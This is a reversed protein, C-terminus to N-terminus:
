SAAWPFLVEPGKEFTESLIKNPTKRFRKAATVIARAICFNRTDGTIQMTREVYDNVVELIALRKDSKEVGNQFTSVIEEGDLKVKEEICFLCASTQGDEFGIHPRMHKTCFMGTEISCPTCALTILSGDPRRQPIINIIDVPKECTECLSTASERKEVQESTM